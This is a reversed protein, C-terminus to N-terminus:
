VKPLFQETETTDEVPKPKRPEYGYLFISVIVLMAGLAFQVTLNFKFLYMSAVCSIIIALSTAFGKLINDAYKVVMAVILGGGAQLVVLYWVFLDYGIFFGNQRISRFDNSFCTLLGFPLSLLSLQVNRMWVSIDAGKLMKEFYIGAFGSLVCAGLAAGFGLLRNQEPMDSVSQQPTSSDALQVLVVGGVLFVLAGWQQQLLKKKLITVAFMATTLIKLQYTVQYTAADLHSASLYLLNNQIIYVLSPVCIKFTDVPNKVITTHLATVFRNVDQGEEHFVLVLCTLLKVFESMVVATSSLFMDGSRTRGYRMSLGLVANQLTLTILSIYKLSNQNAKIHM